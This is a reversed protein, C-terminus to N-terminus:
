ILDSLLYLCQFKNQRPEFILSYIQQIIIMNFEPSHSVNDPFSKNTLQLLSFINSFEFYKKLEPFLYNIM